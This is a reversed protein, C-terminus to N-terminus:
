LTDYPSGYELLSCHITYLNRVPNVCGTIDGLQSLEVTINVRNYGRLIQFRVFGGITLMLTTVIDTYPATHRCVVPIYLEM